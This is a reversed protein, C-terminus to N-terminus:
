LVIIFSFIIYILCYYILINLIMEKYKIEIDYTFAKLIFEIIYLIFKLHKMIIKSISRYYKIRM